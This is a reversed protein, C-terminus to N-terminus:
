IRTRYLLATTTPLAYSLVDKRVQHLISTQAQAKLDVPGDLLAVKEQFVRVM